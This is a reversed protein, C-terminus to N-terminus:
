ADGGRLWKAASQEIVARAQAQVVGKLNFTGTMEEDSIEDNVILAAALGRKGADRLKDILTDRDVPAAVDTHTSIRTAAGYSDEGHKAM